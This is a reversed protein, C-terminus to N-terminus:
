RSTNPCALLSWGAVARKWPIGAAVRLTQDPDSWGFLLSHLKMDRYLDGDATPALRWRAVFVFQASRSVGMRQMTHNSWIM